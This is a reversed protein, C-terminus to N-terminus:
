RPDTSTWNCRQWNELLYDISAQKCRNFVDSLLIAM